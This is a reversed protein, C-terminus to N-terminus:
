SFNSPKSAKYKTRGGRKSISEIEEIVRAMEEEYRNPNAVLEMLSATSKWLYTSRDADLVEWVFFCDDAGGLLCLVSDAATGVSIPGLSVLHEKALYNVQEAHRADPALQKFLDAESEIGRCEELLMKTDVFTQGKKEFLELRKNLYVPLDHELRSEMYDKLGCSTVEYETVAFANYSISVTLAITKSRLAEKLSNHISDFLPDDVRITQKISKTLGPLNHRDFTLDVEATGSSFIFGDIQLWCSHLREREWTPTTSVPRSVPKLVPPPPAKPWRPAAPGSYIESASFGSVENMMEPPIETVFRSPDLFIIGGDRQRRVMPSCIFLEDETRTVAVYFLRREEADGSEEIAKKSPFMDECAFLIFVVKWELGKAQHVTSLRIADAPAEADKAVEGDVNSQLAIESLFEETTKFKVTFDILGDIDEQRYKHNDFNEVMYE